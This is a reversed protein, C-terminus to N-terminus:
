TVVEDFGRTARTLLAVMVGLVLLVLVAMASGLPADQVELYQSAILGGMLVGKDGGLLAPVVYEGTMPVATLLVGAAIGPRALPLTVDLFARIGGSGLDHAAELYSSPIRSFAVYLPLTMLPLYNYVIGVFVATPTDLVHIPGHVISLFRLAHDLPGHDDLITQWSMTRILFSTIYPVLVLTTLLPAFRGAKRALFYAPPLAVVLCILTGTCSFLLTRLFVDLNFGTLAQKFNTLTFGVTATGFGAHAFAYVVTFGLPIVFLVVMWLVPVALVLRSVASSPSRLRTLVPVSV